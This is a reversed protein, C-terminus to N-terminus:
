RPRRQNLSWDYDTYKLAFDDNELVEAEATLGARRLYRAVYRGIAAKTGGFDKEYDRFKFLPSLYASRRQVDIRNKSPTRTLFTLAQDELQADMDAGRYAEPRLPPCGMAACVLAFHIRPESFERRIIGHEIDDLSYRKGGIRIFRIGWPSGIKRISRREQHRNILDITFANYANIWFALRELGDLGRPDFAAFSALYAAFTPSVAFADYDVLGDSVHDRLLRDFAAHDFRTQAPTPSAAFALAAAVM